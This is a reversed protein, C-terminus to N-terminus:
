WLVPYIWSASADHSRWSRWVMWTRRWSPKSKNQHSRHRQSSYSCGHWFAVFPLSCVSLYFHLSFLFLSCLVPTDMQGCRRFYINAAQWLKRSHTCHKSMDTFWLAVIQPSHMSVNITDCSIIFVPNLPFGCRSLLYRPAPLFSDQYLMWIQTFHCKNTM